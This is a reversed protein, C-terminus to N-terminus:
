IGLIDREREIDDNLRAADGGPDPNSKKEKSYLHKNDKAFGKEWPMKHQSDTLNIANESTWGKQGLVDREYAGVEDVKSMLENYEDEERQSGPKDSDVPTYMGTSPLGVARPTGMIKGYKKIDEEFHNIKVKRKDTIKIGTKGSNEDSDTWSAPLAQKHDDGQEEKTRTEANMDPYSPFSEESKHVALRLKGPKVVLQPNRELFSDRQDLTLMLEGASEGTEKNTFEYLPM